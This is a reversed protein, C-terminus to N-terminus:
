QTNGYAKELRELAIKMKEPNEYIQWAIQRDETDMKNWYKDLRIDPASQFNATDEFPINLEKGSKYIEVLSPEKGNAIDRSVKEFLAANVKAASRKDEKDFWGGGFGKGRTARNAKITQRINILVSRPMKADLRSWLNDFDDDSLKSHYAKQLKKEIQERAFDEPTILYDMIEDEIKMYDSYDTEPNPKGRAALMDYLSDSDVITNDGVKEDIQIPDTITNNIIDQRVDHSIQNATNVLDKQKDANWWKRDNEIKRRQGVSLPLDKDKIHQEFEVDSLELLEREIARFEIKRQVNYQTQVDEIIADLTKLDLGYKEALQKQNAPKTLWDLPADWNKKEYAMEVLMKSILPRARKENVVTLWSEFLKIRLELSWFLPNDYGPMEVPILRGNEDFVPKGESDLKPVLGLLDMQDIIKQQYSQETPANIAHDANIETSLNYNERFNKANQRFAYENTKRTENINAREFWIEFENQARPNSFKVSNRIGETVKKLGPLYTETDTNGLLSTEHESYQKLALTKANNLEDYYRTREQIQLWNLGTDTLVNDLEQLARYDQGGGPSIVYNGASPTPRVQRRYHQLAEM